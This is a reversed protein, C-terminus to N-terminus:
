QATKQQLRFIVFEAPKLPAFGVEVIVKGADIDGQTMTQGKGCRVFYADSAKEGQFAGARFLGDMFTEINLRLSAWLNHNNSEFVAWQIGDYISDKLMLTLRQVNVYRKEPNAKTALTRAGWIVPQSIINRICNVGNPNLGDQANDGVIHELRVTGSITTQLGAPAKWVGSLTDTKAWLGSAFGSPPVFYTPKLNPRKESHYFPNVVKPRPYYMATYPSTPLGLGSVDNASRLQIGGPPDVIVMRNGMTEAHSIAADVVLKSMGSYAHGPTLIINVGKTDSLADLSPSYLAANSTLNGNSGPAHVGTISRTVFRNKFAQLGDLKTHHAASGTNLGLLKRFKSVNVAVASGQVHTNSAMILAKGSAICTFTGNGNVHNRVERQIQFAIESLSNAAVINIDASSSSGDLSIKLEDGAATSVPLSLDFSTPSHDKSVWEDQYEPGSSPFNAAPPLIDAIAACVISTARLNVADVFAQKDSSNFELESLEEIITREGSKVDQQYVKLTYTEPNGVPIDKEVSVLLENGWDGPNAAVFSFTPLSTATDGPFFFKGEAITASDAVRCIYAKSGGNQFFARVTHGMEDVDPTLGDFNQIGGFITQYEKWSFILTPTDIPGTVAFGLIAATSTGASEIPRAGSSIEEVYVGPHLYSPM